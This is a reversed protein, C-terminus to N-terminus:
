GGSAVVEARCARRDRRRAFLLAVALPGFATGSSGADCACARRKEGDTDGGTDAPPPESVSLTYGYASGDDVPNAVASVVIWAEDDGHLGDIMAVGHTGDVPVPVRTHVTGARTAVQVAWDPGADGDFQVVVRDPVGRLEWYNSGFTSPARPPTLAAGDAHFILGSPRRSNPYTWGGYHDIAAQYAEGDAWDFTGLRGSFDFYADEISGKGEEALLGDLVVLPDGGPPAEEWSRRILEDNGATIETLHQLFLFAGYQHYGELTGDPYTFANIPVDPLLVLGILFSTNSTQEPYVIDEVWMAGAEWYWAGQGDYTYTGAADQLAHFFEHAATTAAYAPDTLSAKAVVVYGFGDSDVYYYGAVGDGSPAGNGTDGVYVNFKYADSGTPAGMGLDGVEVSWAKEFAAGLAALAPDTDAVGHGYKIAFNDTEYVGLTSSVADRVTKPGPPTDRYRALRRPATLGHAALAETACATQGSAAAHDRLALLAPTLCRDGSAFADDVARRLDGCEDARASLSLLLWLM